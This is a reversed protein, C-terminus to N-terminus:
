FKTLIKVPYYSYYFGNYDLDFSKDYKHCDLSKQKVAKENQEDRFGAVKWERHDSYEGTSGEVIYIIENKM